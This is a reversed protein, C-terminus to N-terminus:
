RLVLRGPAPAPGADAHEAKRQYILPRGAPEANIPRFQQGLEALTATLQMKGPTHMFQTPGRGPWVLVYDIRHGISRELWAIPRPHDAPALEHYPDRAARHRVPFYGLKHASLLDHNLSVAGREIALLAPAHFLVDLRWGNYRKDANRAATITYATLVTAGPPIARGSELFAAVVRDSGRYFRAREITAGVVALMLVPVVLRRLRPGLGVHAVALLLLAFLFPLLRLQASWHKVQVSGLLYIAVLLLPPLAIWAARVWATRDAGLRLLAAATLLWVLAIYPAVVLFERMSLSFVISISALHMLNEVVSTPAPPGGALMHRVYFSVAVAFAPINVAAIKLGDGLVRGAEVHWLGGAEVARRVAVGIRAMAVAALFMVFGFLHTVVLLFGGAGIVALTQWTLRDIRQVSFGFLLLFGVLSLSFNYFGFHLFYGFGLPLFLFAALRGERTVANVAYRAAAALGLWYLSILIKEATLLPVIRSLGGLLWYISSNPELYRNFEFFERLAAADPEGLRQVLYTIYLHVPGDQSPFRDVIWVPILAALVLAWYIPREAAILRDALRVMARTVRM